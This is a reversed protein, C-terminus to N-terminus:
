KLTKVPILNYIYINIDQLGYTFGILLLDINDYRWYAIGTVSQYIGIGCGRARGEM